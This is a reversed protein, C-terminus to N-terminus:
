ELYYRHTAIKIIIKDVCDTDHEVSLLNNRMLILSQVIIKIEDNNLFLYYKEEKM